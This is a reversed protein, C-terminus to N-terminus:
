RKPDVVVAAEEEAVGEAAGAVVAAAVAVVVGAPGEAELGAEVARALVRDDNLILVAGGYHASICM